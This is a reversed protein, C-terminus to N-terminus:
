LDISGVWERIRQPLSKFFGEAKYHTDAILMWNALDKRTQEIGSKAGDSLRERVFFEGVM